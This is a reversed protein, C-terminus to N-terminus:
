ENIANVRLIKKATKKFSLLSLRFFNYRPQLGLRKELEKVKQMYEKENEYGVGCEYLFFYPPQIKELFNKQKYFIYIAEFIDLLDYSRITKHKSMISHERQRYYYSKGCYSVFRQCFPFIMYLFGEDEYIKGELFRVGSREILSKSFLCRWVSGGIAINNSNPILVKADKYEKPDRSYEGFYVIQENCVIEVNFKQANGVMEELFELDIYDDSDIFYIYEGRARDLGINRAKSLGGNEVCVLEIRHDGLYERAINESEDTSGDNVLIIQLNQYTQNIISDLCERLYPAVNFIPVIVSILPLMVGGGKLFNLIREEDLMDSSIRLLYEKPIIKTYESIPIYNEIKASKKRSEKMKPFHWTNLDVIITQYNFPIKLLEWSYVEDDSEEQIDEIFYLYRNCILWHDYPDFIPDNKDIYIRGDFCHLNLRFYFVIDDRTRPLSFTAKLKKADYIQDADIKCLWENQPIFSLAFNYYDKLGKKTARENKKHRCQAVQYPYEIAKFGIHKKCFDQIIRDSGDTCENYVIIGRNFAGLISNLSQELTASENSVRIFAWPNLPSESHKEDQFNSCILNRRTNLM